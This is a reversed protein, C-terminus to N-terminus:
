ERGSRRTSRPSSSSITRTFLGTEESRTRFPTALSGVRIENHRITTTAEQVQRDFTNAWPDLIGLEKGPGGNEVKRLAALCLFLAVDGRAHRLFVRCEEEWTV